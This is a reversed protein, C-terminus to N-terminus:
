LVVPAFKLAQRPAPTQRCSQHFSSLNNQQRCLALLIQLNGLLQGGRGTGHGAPAMAKQLAPYRTQFLVSRTGSASGLQGGLLDLVQYLFSRLFFRSLGRVPASATHSSCYADTFGTYAANPANMTEFGM